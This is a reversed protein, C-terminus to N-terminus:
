KDVMKKAYDLVEKDELRPPVTMGKQFAPRAGCRDLWASLHDLGDISIQAWDYAKVWPWCAVDAVSVEDGIIYPRGDSLHKDLVGYLRLTENQYREKAAPIDEPFYNVLQKLRIKTM